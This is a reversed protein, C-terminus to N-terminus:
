LSKQLSIYEGLEGETSLIVKSPVEDVIVRFRGSQEVQNFEVKTRAPALGLGWISSILFIM